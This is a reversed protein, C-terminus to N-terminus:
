RRKGSVIFSCKIFTHRLPETKHRAARGVDLRKAPEARAFRRAARRPAEGFLKFM